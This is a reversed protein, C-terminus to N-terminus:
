LLRFLQEQSIEACFSTDIIRAAAPTVKMSAPQQWLDDDKDDFSVEVRSWNRSALSVVIWSEPNGAGASAVFTGGCGGAVAIEGCL